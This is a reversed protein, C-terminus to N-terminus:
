PECGPRSCQLVCTRADEVTIQGDGNADRPDGPLAPTNRAAFILNIDNRDVRRDGTVDCTLSVIRQLARNVNVRGHGFFDDRGPSDESPPGVQDDATAALLNLVDDHTLLPDASLLLTAVGSAVPTAASCGSFGVPNTSRDSSVTVVSLGPAVLDLASGTASFFARADRHDTAGVSITLPSAGPGSRDADGLGGNGACAMLIAGADRAFQLAVMLTSSLPYNILSMNIVRSRTAAFVLGQALDLTTGLNQADLVKIPLISVHHDVGAVGFANNANAALIGAVFVGHPHDAQADADENVFDFGPLVRGAFEPHGFDIGTDLIAVVIADSGTTIQWGEVADVDADPTGGTQGTNNLHWQLFFFPDDPVVDGGQGIFNPEAYECRVDQRCMDIMDDITKDPAVAMRYVRLQPIYARIALGHTVNMDDIDARSTGPAYRMLIEGPVHAGRPAEQAGLGGNPLAASFAALLVVVRVVHALRTLTM